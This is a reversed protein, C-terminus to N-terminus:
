SVTIRLFEDPDIRLLLLADTATAMMVAYTANFTQRDVTRGGTYHVHVTQAKKQSRRAYPFIRQVTAM